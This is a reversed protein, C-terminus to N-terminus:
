SEDKYTYFLEREEDSWEPAFGGSHLWCSLIEHYENASEHDDEQVGALFSELALQPDL